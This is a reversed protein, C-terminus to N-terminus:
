TEIIFIDIIYLSLNELETSGTETIYIDTIHEGLSSIIYVDKRGVSAGSNRTRLLKKWGNPLSEIVDPM